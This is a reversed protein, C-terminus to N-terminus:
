SLIQPGTELRGSLRTPRIAARWFNESRRKWLCVGACGTLAEGGLQVALDLLERPPVGMDSQYAVAPEMVHILALEAHLARALAVGVSIM